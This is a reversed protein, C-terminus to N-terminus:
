LKMIMLTVLYPQMNNHALGGGVSTLYKVGNPESPSTIIYPGNDGTDDNSGTYPVQLSPIENSVLTHSVEGGLVGVSNYTSGYAISTRGNRNITGNNGNCIAFGECLNIGLGTEDFNAAIYSADVDLEIVQFQLASVLPRLLDLLQQVTGRKLDTGIEHPILDTLNFTAPPLEGVRITTILNPDIM